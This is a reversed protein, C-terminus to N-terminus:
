LNAIVPMINIHFRRSRIFYIKHIKTFQIYPLYLFQFIQIM